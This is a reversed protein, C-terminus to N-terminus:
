AHEDSNVGQVVAKLRLSHALSSHGSGFDDLATSVGLDRIAHRQRINGEIPDMMLSGTLELDIGTPTIGAGAM